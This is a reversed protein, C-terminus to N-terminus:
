RQPGRPKGRLKGAHATGHTTYQLLVLSVVGGFTSGSGVLGLFEFM